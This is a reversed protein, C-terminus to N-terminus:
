PTLDCYAAQSEDPATGPPVLRYRLMMEHDEHDMVHCHWSYGQLTLEVPHPGTTGAHDEMTGSWTGFVADPDFGLEDATPFRVLIRTVQGPPCRVTDKWGVEVPLPPRMVPETIFPEPSKNWKTGKPPFPGDFGFYGLVDFDQRGLIRFQVLHLHLTHPMTNTNVLDWQEIAGQEPMEIPEDFYGMNNLNMDSFPIRPLAILQNLTATRRRQPTPLPPLPAPRRRGGRLRTPVAGRWGRRDTATFRMINPIMHSGILQGPWVIEEDNRLEVQEGPRLSSFDILLDYREGVGVTLQQAKVPADLLGGDNGIVWMPMGNSLSFTYDNLPAANVLRFRYLGRAVDLNPWAKGNVCMVDGCFGGQWWDRPVTWTSWYRPLGSDWFMKDQVILPIEFEGAPLGLPNDRRGTDWEDRVWYQTVLGAYTNLRTSGMAHDHIWLTTADLDNGFDYVRSEGPRFLHLPHGDHEPANPAGHLHVSMPPHERDAPDSGHHSLDMDAAFLHAPLENVFTTPAREGRHTVFTPGLHTVDGYAWSDAVPLDRHFRHRRQAIAVTGGLERIPPIPLADVYPTLTPSHFVGPVRLWEPYSPQAGKGSNAFATRSALAGIPGFTAAGIVGARLLERRTLGKGM